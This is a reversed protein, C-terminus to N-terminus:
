LLRAAAQDMFWIVGRGQRAVVQAPFKMPDYEGEFVARAAEAKDDGAVLFVTHEARLLVGPLLTVRWQTFKEVYAPAAIRGRDEILSEGPFLSATHADPGMGLHVVDFRPLMGEELGFADCIEDEYRAVARPPEMEGYVRHVNQLPIRAPQILHANVMKYNSQDDTPPVCREDVFFLQIRDWPLKTQALREFMPKPSSGGSVAFTARDQRSLTEDLVGAIHRACAEATAAADAQIYREISM